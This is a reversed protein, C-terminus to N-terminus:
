KGGTRDITKQYFSETSNGLSTYWDRNITQWERSYEQDEQTGGRAEEKKSSNDSSTLCM